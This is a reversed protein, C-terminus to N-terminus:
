ELGMQSTHRGSRCLKRPIKKISTLSSMAAAICNITERQLYIIVMTKRRRTIDLNDYSASRQTIETNTSIPSAQRAVFGHNPSASRSLNAVLQLRTSDVGRSDNHNDQHNAVLHNAILTTRFDFGKGNAMNSDRMHLSSDSKATLDFESNSYSTESEASVSEDDSLIILDQSSGGMSHTSGSPSSGRIGNDVIEAQSGSNQNASATMSKQQINLLFEDIDVFSSYDDNWDTIPLTSEQQIGLLIVDIDPFEEEDNNPANQTATSHEQGVDDKGYRLDLAHGKKSLDKGPRNLATVAGSLCPLPSKSTSPSKHFEINDM